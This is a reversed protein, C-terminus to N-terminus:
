ERSKAQFFSATAIKQRDSQTGTWRQGNGRYCCRVGNALALWVQLLDSALSSKNPVGTIALSELRDTPSLCVWLWVSVLCIWSLLLTQMKLLVATLPSFSWDSKTEEWAASDTLRLVCIWLFGPEKRDLVVQKKSKLTVTPWWIM